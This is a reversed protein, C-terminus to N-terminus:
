LVLRMDLQLVEIGILKLEGIDKHKPNILINQETPLIASPVTMALDKNFKVWETGFKQTSYHPPNDRLHEKLESFDTKTNIFKDALELEAYYLDNPAYDQNFHVLIELVSLSLTSSLYLMKTGAKNWRGGYLRAGEGSFDEIYQRKAIRFLRM